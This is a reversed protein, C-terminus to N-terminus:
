YVKASEEGRIVRLAGEALAEMEGEGPYVVVEALHSIYKKIEDTLLDAYALGGTLIIADPKGQIPAMMMCINKATQYAMAELVFKAEEDGAKVRDCVEIFSNTGLHDVVGSNKTLKSRTEKIDLKGSIIADLLTVVPIAGGREPSMPGEGFMGDTVDLVQGLVHAGVSVGGGMHAVIFKCDEYPKGIQKACRRAVAKQNLAHFLSRRPADKLGTLKAIPLMEDVVVPDVIFSPIGLSDGIRKAIIGGLSSAHNAAFPLHLDNVMAENISYTGSAMPKILGGRGVVVDLTNIDFGKEKLCEKIVRERYEDQELIGSYKDIDEKEHRVVIVELTEDGNFLAIKTSTSGPNIALVKFDNRMNIEETKKDEFRWMIYADGGTQYYYGEKFEHTRFGLSKYLKMAGYNETDVELKIRDLGLEKATDLIKLILAKGIGKGHYAKSIAITAIKCYNPTIWTNNYIIAHGVVKGSSRAVFCFADSDGVAEELWEPEDGFAELNIRYVEAMDKSTMKEVAYEM